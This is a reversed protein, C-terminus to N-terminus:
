QCPTADQCSPCSGGTTACQEPCFEILYGKAQNFTDQCGGQPSRGDPCGGFTPDAYADPCKSSDCWLPRCDHNAHDIACKLDPQFTVPISYWTGNQTSINYSDFKGYPDAQNGASFEVRTGKACDAVDFNAVIALGATLCSPKWSPLCSTYDGNIIHWFSQGGQAIVPGTTCSCQPAGASGDGNCGIQYAL